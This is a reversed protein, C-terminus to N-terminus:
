APGSAGEPKRVPVFIEEEFLRRKKNKPESLPVPSQKEHEKRTKRKSSDFTPM